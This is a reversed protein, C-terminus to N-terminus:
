REPTHCFSVISLKAPCFNSQTALWSPQTPIYLEERLTPPSLDNLRRLLVKQGRQECCYGSTSYASYYRQRSSVASFPPLTDM